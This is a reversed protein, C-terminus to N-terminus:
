RLDVWEAVAKAVVWSGMDPSVERAKVEWRRPMFYNRMWATM